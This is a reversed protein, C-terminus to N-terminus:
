RKNYLVDWLAIKLKSGYDELWKASRSIERIADERKEDKLGKGVNRQTSYSFLARWKLCEMDDISIAGAKKIEQEKGAMKIFTNLRYLYSSSLIAEGPEIWTKITNKIEALAIFEDWLVTESFLTVRNRGKEKAKELSSEASEAFKSIPTHPKHLSIGASFHVENNHCVYEAFRDKLFVALDITRNWPGILFLDDGGAFVTYIEGFGNKKDTKLMYPLYVTFFMNMQRSLTALRSITFQGKKIGCSMIYGLEDVDAKLVGLAQLGRWSGNDAPNLAANAIHEFTKPGGEKIQEILELYKDESKRGVLYREEKLDAEEFVPVYGSIFKATVDKSINGEPDIGTDWYKLLSGTRAMEKLGGGIFAVQYEGFIPETLKDDGKIDAEATTIALRNEKVLNKGLFIHDRCIRCISGKTGTTEDGELEPDSPRKGCFPCLPRELDNRFSDLYGSVVGLNDMPIKAYKKEECIAGLRDWLDQFNETTFDSPSAEITSFGMSLEGYSIDLLWNNIKEECSRVANRASETNPAIITFKGAANLAVSTCTLGTKRLLMDCALESFLSVAFSRGRLIKSRNRGADGGKSFIFSQIGYFDGTVLLFKKEGTSTIADVELSDRDTHYLYLASALASTIRSHDYLSVDPVVKGARAAPIASTYIMMLSDFHEFWLGVNENRHLLRELNYIFQEFLLRYEEKGEEAKAPEIESKLGPFITKPSLARLPYCYRHNCTKDTEDCLGEFLSLLRTKQYDQFAIAKNYEDFGTRDFGSSIRDAMAIIWQLPTQPKHHGAALNIFTDDLGWNARN